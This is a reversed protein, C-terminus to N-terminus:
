ILITYIKFNHFITYIEDHDIDNKTRLKMMLAYFYVFKKKWAM